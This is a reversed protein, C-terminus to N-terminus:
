HLCELVAYYAIMVPLSVMMGFIVRYAFIRIESLRTYINLTVM